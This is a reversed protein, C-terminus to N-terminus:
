ASMQLSGFFQRILPHHFIGLHLAESIGLFSGYMSTRRLSSPHPYRPLHPNESLRRLVRFLIPVVLESGYLM